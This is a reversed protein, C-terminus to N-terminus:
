EERKLLARGGPTIRAERWPQDAAARYRALLPTDGKLLRIEAYEPTVHLELTQDGVRLGHLTAGSWGSPLRPEIVLEHRQAQPSLGFLGETIGQVFLAASWLQIFCLGQPILEKLTGLTGYRATVGINRLLQIGTDADGHRFAALALLGTPLTWVRMDAGRTHVMGWENVWERVIRDLVRQAREPAAIGTLGPLLVTWHGDFQPQGNLHLSDAYMGEQEIWWDSEFRATLEGAYGAFRVADGPRGLTLAMDRLTTLAQYLYCVVDLKCAGMGPVEVVGDGIPYGRGELTASFHELGEVCIPYMRELFDLDGSWRVYDWCAVAFQPTEQINGPHYVRGNTTIEHPVRSCARWAYRGLEELASHAIDAFGGAVVGPVSYTTDCGFLQPYEPLGALLYPALAPRYDARLMHINQRAVQWCRNIDQDPTELRIASTITRYLAIKSSLTDVAARLVNGPPSADDRQVALRWQLALAEGPQVILPFRAQAMRGSIEWAAPSASVLTVTVGAYADAARWAVGDSLVRMEPEAPAVGGFWCFRLDAEARLLVTANVPAAGDNRALLTAYYHPQDDVAFETWELTLTGVTFHRTIYAGFLDCCVAHDLPAVIGDMELALAWGDLIRLPHAWVGGMNDRLHWEGFPHREGGITTIAYIRQGSIFVPTTPTAESEWVNDDIFYRQLTV